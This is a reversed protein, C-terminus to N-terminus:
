PPHDPPPYKAANTKHSPAIQWPYVSHAMGVLVDRLQGFMDDFFGAFATIIASASDQVPPIIAAASVSIEPDDATTSRPKQGIAILGFRYKPTLLAVSSCYPATDSCVARAMTSPVNIAAGIAPKANDTVPMAPGPPPPGSLGTAPANQRDAGHYAVFGRWAYRKQRGVYPAVLQECLM